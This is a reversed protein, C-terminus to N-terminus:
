RDYGEPQEDLDSSPPGDIQGHYPKLVGVASEGVVFKGIASDPAWPDLYQKELQRGDPAPLGAAPVGNLTAAPTLYSPPKSESGITLAVYGSSFTENMQVVPHGWGDHWDFNEGRGRMWDPTHETTLPERSGDQAVALALAATAGQQMAVIMKPQGTLSTALEAALTWIILDLFATPMQAFTLANSTYSAALTVSTGAEIEFAQFSTGAWLVPTSGNYGEEFPLRDGFLDSRHRYIAVPITPNILQVIKVADGPKEFELVWQPNSSTLNATLTATRRAFRWPQVSLCNAVVLPLISAAAAAAPSGDNLSSLVTKAGLRFLAANVLGTGTQDTLTPATDTTTLRRTPAQAEDRQVAIQLQDQAAQRMQAAIDGNGTLPIAIEAALMMTVLDTFASPWQDYTLGSSTYIICVSPQQAWVVLTGTAGLSFGEEYEVGQQAFDQRHDYDSAPIAVDLVNLVAVVDQPKVFENAWAPNTTAQPTVNVARRAFRWPHAALMSNIVTPLILGCANGAYSGDSLATLMNQYSLRFLAINALDVAATM